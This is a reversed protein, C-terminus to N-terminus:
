ARPATDLDFELIVIMFLHNFHLLLGISSIHKSKGHMFVLHEFVLHLLHENLCTQFSFGMADQRCSSNSSMSEGVDAAAAADLLKSFTSAAQLLAEEVTASSELPECSAFARRRLVSRRSEPATANVCALSSSRDKCNSAAIAGSACDFEMRFNVLTHAESM